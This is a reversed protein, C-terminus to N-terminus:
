EKTGELGHCALQASVNSTTEKYELFPIFLDCIFTFVVEVSLLFSFGFVEGPESAKKTCRVHHSEDVILVAWERELMSKRLRHLMTYSTVVVKPCRTLHAPNSKRGFVLFLFNVYIHHFVLHFDAPSCFPLWRELEEAWSFRLIAPCVVLVPGETMFCCAIAIAQLTKGLGMEDAILCRGGRQLGFRVGELQFPMLADLLMKPLKRIYEDVRENSLQEPRCPLWRGETLSHSLRGVVNLTGWPIEEIEVGKYNKLCRLVSDYDGLKYVCAKGGGHNQTYHVLVVNSLCDSLKELCAAEGPYAFGEVADPAVSFSDPSCIELRARFKEPPPAPPQPKPFSPDAFSSPPHKPRPIATAHHNTSIKRCKFLRWPDQQNITSSSEALAKRKALAALRNSEARQRQEETMEM